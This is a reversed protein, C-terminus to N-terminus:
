EGPKRRGRRSGGNNMRNTNQLQKLEASLYKSILERITGDYRLEIKVALYSRGIRDRVFHMRVNLLSLENM